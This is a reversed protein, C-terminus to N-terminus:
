EPGKSYVAIALREARPVPNDQRRQRQARPLHHARLAQRVRQPTLMRGHRPGLHHLTAHNSQALREARRRDLRRLLAIPQDHVGIVHIRLPELAQDPPAPLQEGKSLGFSGAV